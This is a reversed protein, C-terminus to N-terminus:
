QYFMGSICKLSQFLVKTAVQFMLVYFAPTIQYNIFLVRLAAKSMMCCDMESECIWLLCKLCVYLNVKCFLCPHMKNTCYHVKLLPRTSTFLVMSGHHPKKFSFPEANEASSKWLIQAKLCCLMSLLVYACM